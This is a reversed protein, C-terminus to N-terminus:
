LKWTNEKSTTNIFHRAELAVQAPRKYSTDIETWPMKSNGLVERYRRVISEVKELPLYLDGGQAAYRHSIVYPNAFLHVLVVGAKCLARDIYEKYPELKSPKGEVVPSYVLDDPYPFRDLVLSCKSALYSILEICRLVKLIKADDKSFKSVWWGYDIRLREVLTSKGSKDSGVVIAIM